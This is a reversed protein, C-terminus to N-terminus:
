DAKVKGIFTVCQAGAPPCTPLARTTGATCAAGSPVTSPCNPTPNALYHWEVTTCTKLTLCQGNGSVTPAQSSPNAVMDFGVPNGDKNIEPPFFHQWSLLGLAVVLIAIIGKLISDSKM